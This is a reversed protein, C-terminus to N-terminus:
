WIPQWLDCHHAAATDDLRVAGPALSLVARSDPTMAQQAPVGQASPVGTRAFSSWYDIMTEALHARGPEGVENKGGLDFLYPLDTAHAAGHSLEGSPTGTVDPPDPDAFEYGYVRTKAALQRDAALTRCSWASDTIVHAWAVPASPFATLPYRQLVQPANAGFAAAVLRPYTQPTIAQPDAAVAAAVFSNHEDHNGGSLVPIAAVKGDRVAAAPDAPLLDTGYSLHDSFTQTIKSLAAVPLGRLCDLPEPQPCGATKAAQLGDQQTTAVPKYPTEAPIGPFLGGAPWSLACSGSSIAIRQVLGAAAPSTLLACAAMGGASEGFVTLNGPDGGFAAANDKAWRTGALQDAFGFTGSGGLGPLGLYGFVGLRYNVTVVVVNGRDALRQADYDAGSGSTFGGGHWWVMVPLKAGARAGRPTTVNLFLCDEADSPKAGPTSATQACSPGAETAEVVGPAAPAPQPPTWRRAGTPALAYRVGLFQRTSATALGHLKGSTTDVTLSADGTDGSSCGSLVVVAAALVAITRKRSGGTKM